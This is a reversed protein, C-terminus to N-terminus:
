TLISLMISLLMDSSDECNDVIDDSLYAVTTVQYFTKYDLKSDYAFDLLSEKIEDDTQEYEEIKSRLKRMEAITEASHMKLLVQLSQDILDTTNLLRKKVFAAAKKDKIKYRCLARSLTFINDVIKDETDVFRMMDDILNPAVGGSTIASSLNFVENDSEHAISRIATCFKDNGNVVEVLNKNAKIAHKIVASSSKFISRESGDGMLENLFGM